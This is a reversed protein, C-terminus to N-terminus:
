EGAASVSGARVYAAEFHCRYLSDYVSSGDDSPMVEAKTFAPLTTTRLAQKQSLWLALGAATADTPLGVIAVIDHSGLTWLVQSLDGGLEELRQRLADEFRSLENGDSEETPMFSEVGRETLNMLLVYTPM